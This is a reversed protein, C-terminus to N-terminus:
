QKHSAECKTRSAVYLIAMWLLDKELLQELFSNPSTRHGTYYLLDSEVLM